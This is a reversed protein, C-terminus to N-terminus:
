YYQRGVKRDVKALDAQLWKYQVSDTAWTDFPIYNSLYVMHAVGSIDYSYFMNVPDTLPQGNSPMALSKVRPRGDLQPVPYRTNYAAFVTGDPQFELEHDSSAFPQHRPRCLVHALTDTMIADPSPM